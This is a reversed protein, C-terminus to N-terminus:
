LVRRTIGEKMLEVNFNLLLGVKKKSLKLYTLLQAEHVPLVHEISKLEVVVQEEVVIDLLYGCNLRVSKYAVPLPVQREFLIGRHQLEYCLCEEYASELLGPELHKHVEIAAACIAGTLEELILM